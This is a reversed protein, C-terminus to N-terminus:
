RTKKRWKRKSIPWLGAWLVALPLAFLYIILPIVCHVCVGGSKCNVTPVPEHTDKESKARKKKLDANEARLKEVRERLTACSKELSQRQLLHEASNM